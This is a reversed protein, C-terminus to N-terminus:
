VLLDVDEQEHAVLPRAQRVAVGAVHEVLARDGLIAAPDGLDVLLEGLRLPAGVGSPDRLQPLFALREERLDGAREAEAAATAGRTGRALPRADVDLAPELVGDGPDSLRVGLQPSEELSRYTGSSKASEPRS